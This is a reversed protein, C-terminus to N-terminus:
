AGMGLLERGWAIIQLDAPHKSVATGVDMGAKQRDPLAEGCIDAMTGDPTFVENDHM